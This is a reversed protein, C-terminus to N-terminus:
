RILEIQGVAERFENECDKWTVSYIYQGSPLYDGDLQGNWAEKPDRSEFVIHNWRDMIKLYFGGTPRLNTRWTENIGDRNPSFANPILYRRDMIQIVEIEDEWENFCIDTARLRYVGARLITIHSTDEGTNWIYQTAGQITAGIQIPQVSCLYTDPGLELPKPVLYDIEIDDTAIGCFNTVTVKYNGAKTIYREAKKAGDSWLYKSNPFFSSLRLTDGPCLLTDEGLKVSTGSKFVVLQMEDSWQCLNTDTVTVGFVGSEFASISSTTEGTSWQYARYNGPTLRLQYDDCIITDNGLKPQKAKHITYRVTDIWICGATDIAKCWYSGAKRVSIEKKQEGTSWEYSPYNSLCQLLLSDGDCSSTDNSLQIIPGTAYDLQLRFSVMFSGRKSKWARIAIVNKGHKLRNQVNYKKVVSDTSAGVLQDNIYLAFGNDASICAITKEFCNSKLDFSKRFYATDGDGNSWMSKVGTVQPYLVSAGPSPAISPKWSSDDFLLKYWDSRYVTDVKWETSSQIDFQAHTFSVCAFSLLFVCIQIIRM